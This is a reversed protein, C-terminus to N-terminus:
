TYIMVANITGCTYQNNVDFAIKTMALIESIDTTGDASDVIM